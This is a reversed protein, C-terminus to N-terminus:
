YSVRLLSFSLTIWAKLHFPNKKIAKWSYQISSQFVKGKQLIRGAKFYFNSLTNNM